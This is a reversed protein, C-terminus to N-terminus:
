FFPRCTQWGRFIVISHTYACLLLLVAFIIMLQSNVFFFWNNKRLKADVPM